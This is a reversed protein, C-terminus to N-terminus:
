LVNVVVVGVGDCGVAAGDGVANALNSSETM